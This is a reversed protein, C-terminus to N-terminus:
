IDTTWLGELSRLPLIISSNFLQMNTLNKKTKPMQRRSVNTIINRKTSGIGQKMWENYIDANTIGDKKINYLKKSQFSMSIPYAKGWKGDNRQQQSTGTLTYTYIPTHTEDKIQQYLARLASNVQQRTGRPLNLLKRANRLDYKIGFSDYIDKLTLKNMIYSPSIKNEDM